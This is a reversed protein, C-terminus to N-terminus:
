ALPAAREGGGGGGGETEGSRKKLDEGVLKVRLERFFGVFRM